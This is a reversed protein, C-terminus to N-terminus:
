LNKLTNRQNISKKLKYDIVTYINKGLIYTKFNLYNNFKLYYKLTFKM